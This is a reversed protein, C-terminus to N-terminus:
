GWVQNLIWGDIMLSWEETIWDEGDNSAFVEGTFGSIISCAYGKEIHEMFVTIADYVKNTEYIVRNEEATIYVNYAFTKM